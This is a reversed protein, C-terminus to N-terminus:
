ASELNGNQNVDGGWIWAHTGDQLMGNDMAFQSIYNYFDYKVTDTSFDVSDSWTEISNRHKIEIYHYGTIGASLSITILGNNNLNVGYFVTDITCPNNPDTVNTKRILVMVTDVTTGRFNKYLDGTIWDIGKTQNMLGTTSNYYEQLMTTLQLTKSPIKVEETLRNGMKDYTYIIVSNPYEVKTLRGLNDYSYNITQAKMNIFSLIVITFLYFRKM